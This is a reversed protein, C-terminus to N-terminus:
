LCRALSASLRQSVDDIAASKERERLWWALTDAGTPRAIYYGQIEDCGNARLYDMQEATEVGEGIVRLRLSHALTIIASVIAADDPDTTIDRVFSQDIKLNDIPLRKLVSLSSYGTGFDDMSVRVGMERFRRFIETSARIDEMVVSETLEIELWRPDINCHELAGAVVNDLGRQKFQRASINVAVRLQPQGADLWERMQRCVDRLVWEGIPVILGTEEALPIFDAPSVLGMEPHNWRLLAEVGLIRDTRLDLKPQYYVQLEERELAKRLSNELSLREFATANMAATYFQYNNRGEDKAHFMATDANKVLDEIDEGDFPYVAIGISPTIVVEEEDFLFPSALANLIRRAVRAADQIRDLHTLLVTFEDGGLRAVAVPGDGARRGISDSKRLCHVLRRSVAKLLKDGASHGFTDNIRKFNDLDIFLVGVLQQNRRASEVAHLLRDQFLRRNPLRTLSDYYALHRIKEKSKRLGEFAQMTRLMYRVRYGLILYNMPKTIFDTAGVDFARNISSVDDLGTMMLVPTHEGEPMRRLAKCTQFGDLEPMLVDLLVIDPRRRIFLALAANGNEAEDVLFGSQELAERVLLRVTLDDDVVLVRPRYKGTSADM